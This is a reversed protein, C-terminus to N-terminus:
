SLTPDSLWGDSFSRNVGGCCDQVEWDVKFLGSFGEFLGLSCKHRHVWVSAVQDIVLLNALIALSWDVIPATKGDRGGRDVEM